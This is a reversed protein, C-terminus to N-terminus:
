EVADRGDFPGKWPTRGTIGKQGNITALVLKRLKTDAAKAL